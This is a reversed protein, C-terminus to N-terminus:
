KTSGFIKKIGEGRVERCPKSLQINISKKNKANELAFVFAHCDKRTKININKLISKTAM